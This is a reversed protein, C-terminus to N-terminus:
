QIHTHIYSVYAHIYTHIYTHINAHVHIDVHIHTHNICVHICAHIYTHTYKHKYTYTHIHSLNALRLYGDSTLEFFRTTWRESRGRQIYTDSGMKARAAKSLTGNYLVEATRGAMKRSLRDSLNGFRKRSVVYMCVYICVYMCVYMCVYLCVHVSIYFMSTFICVYM